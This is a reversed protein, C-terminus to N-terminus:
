EAEHRLAILPDVRTARRAPLWSALLAIAALLLSVGGFVLPDLAGVGFLQSQLLRTLGFSAALGLGIGIGATAMGRGVVSRLADTARAGLAMRLGIERTRQSVAYSMVGYIGVAALLLAVAAFTGSLLMNLRPLAVDAAVLEDMTNFAYVPQRPDVALVAQRVPEALAAPDGAARVVVVMGGFPNQPMPIYMEPVPADGLGHHRVDRVVGVIEHAGGIPISLSEGVPDEAGFERAALTENIVMVRPSDGRDRPELVRGRLLPIAMTEFYGATAVRYSAQPPGGAPEDRGAVQYPLSFDIGAYDMPLATVAGVSVVGPTAEIREVLRRYFETKQHDEPYLTEPLYVNAALLNDRRFGPDVAMLEAFTRSMLGAGILLVLALAVEVVVLVELTRRNAAGTTGAGQKLGGALAWRRARRAPVLGFVVGAALSLLVTFALVAGDLELQQLRALPLQPLRRIAGVGWLALGSGLAGGIGALLLTEAMLQRVLHLRGAGLAARVSMEQERSTLRALMLNAVNIGAILLLFGVAAFLTVIAKTGAPGVVLAEHASWVQALVGANTTPYREALTAAIADLEAAAQERTAAAQERTAGAAAQERAAGAQERTAGAALKGIVQYQRQGRREHITAPDFALATWFGNDTQPPFEFGEEAVGVITHPEGDLVLRRGVIDPDAGLENRWFSHSAVAVPESGWVGDEPTFIRGLTTGAGLLSLLSPEVRMSPVDLPEEGGTYTYSWYAYAAMSEITTAQRRWDALDAASVPSFGADRDISNVWILRDADPYPLPDLIVRKVVSFIVTNAAIAVALTLVVVLAFGPQRRLSRLAVRFDQLLNSMTENVGPFRPELQSAGPGAPFREALGGTLLDWLDAATRAALTPLGGRRHAHLATDAFARALSEGQRRRFEPPYARLTLRCLATAARVVVPRASVQPARDTADGIWVHRM